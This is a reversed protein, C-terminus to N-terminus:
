FIGKMQSTLLAAYNIFDFALFNTNDGCMNKPLVLPMNGLTANQVYFGGECM